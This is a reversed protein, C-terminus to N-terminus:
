RLVAKGNLRYLNNKKARDSQQESVGQLSTADHAGHRKRKKSSVWHVM